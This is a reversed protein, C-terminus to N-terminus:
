RSGPVFVYVSDPLSEGMEGSSHGVTGRPRVGWYDLLDVLAVQLVTCIPQCYEPIDLRTSDEDCLLEMANWQCGFSDLYEQSRLVSEKFVPISLLERGMTAWQAGQGTFVFALAGSKSSRKLVPAASLSSALDGLSTAVAFSRFAFGTRRVALTYAMDHLFRGEQPTQIQTKDAFKTYSSALRKIGGKDHTSFALLKPRRDAATELKTAEASRVDSVGSDSSCDDVFVATQHNGVLHRSSLYNYADDLIVHANSGGFGFSNISVRRLGPRPWPMTVLPLALGWEELRLKPNLTEFGANAPIYGKELALVAKVVGALGATGETHGINTKVSGVYLPTPTGRRSPGFVAGVAALELPDQGRM